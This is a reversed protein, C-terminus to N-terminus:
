SVVWGERALTALFRLCDRGTLTVQTGDDFTIRMTM